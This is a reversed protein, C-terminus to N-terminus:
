AAVKATKRNSLILSLCYFVACLLLLAKIGFVFSLCEMVGGFMAGFLNSAFADSRNEIRAFSTSFIIGAFLVPLLLFAGAFIAKEMQPLASFIDVPVLYNLFLTLVLAFYYPKLAVIRWKQAILNAFIAMLLIGSIVISNVVWTAGFLLAFKSINQVELLLFGAGLFFFKWQIRFVSGAMKKIGLYSLLVLIAFIVVFLKPIGRDKLYLYPWDDSSAEVQLSAWQRSKLDHKSVLAKLNEDASITEEIRQRDGEIFCYGGWGRFKSRVELGIPPNGFVQSLMKHFRAGIFDDYVEFIVILVGQPKLMKKAEAFSQISYVYNDLRVNSYSSSLTHSDLLGFVILDFRQKSKKFFSRADDNIVTVRPDQYPKEPHLTLGIKVIEPDIEVATVRRAGNRLAGAVDNGAGSGVILVDEPSRAFLYAINYHDYPVQESPFLNPNKEVFSRSYNNIFMYGVSNVKVYYGYPITKDGSRFSLPLVNLKQYPSWVTRSDPSSKEYLSFTAILIMCAAFLLQRRNPWLFVLTCIGGVLLWFIPPLSYKSVVYFLWIGTLSGLLNIGYGRLPSDYANFTKGLLQGFPIFFLAMLSMSAFLLVIGVSFLFLDMYWKDPRASGWIVLDSDLSLYESMRQLSIPGLHQHFSILVALIALVAFSVWFRIKKEELACGLGIGLFCFLLVLNHFYAFIRIEASLWRIMLIEFFLM